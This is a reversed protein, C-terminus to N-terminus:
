GACAGWLGVRERRAAAEADAIEDAFAVNPEIVLVRAHGTAVLHRNVFLGDDRVVHLLLRGFRDRAEVDRTVSVRTGPALLEALFASAEPGHCEVPEDPDVTEPADVGLLRVRERRGAVSLVVTDGDVVDVVTATM